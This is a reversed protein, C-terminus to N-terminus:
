LLYYARGHDAMMTLERVANGQQNILHFDNRDCFNRGAKMLQEDIKIRAQEEPTLASSV